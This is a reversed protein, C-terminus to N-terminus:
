RKKKNTTTPPPPPPAEQNSHGVNFITWYYPDAKIVTGPEIHPFFYLNKYSKTKKVIQRFDKWKSSNRNFPFKWDRYAKLAISFYQDVTTALRGQLCHRSRQSLTMLYVDSLCGEKSCMCIYQIHHRQSSLIPSSDMSLTLCHRWKWYPDWDSSTRYM